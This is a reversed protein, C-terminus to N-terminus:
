KIKKEFDREEEFSKVIKELLTPTLHFHVKLNGKYGLLAQMLTRHLQEGLDELKHPNKKYYRQLAEIFIEILQYNETEISVKNFMM